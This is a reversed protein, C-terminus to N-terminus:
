QQKEQELLPSESRPIAPCAARLMQDSHSCKGHASGCSNTGSGWGCAPHACWSPGPASFWAPFLLEQTVQAGGLEEQVTCCSNLYFLLTILVAESAEPQM